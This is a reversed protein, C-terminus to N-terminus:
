KKGCFRPDVYQKHGKRNIYYCGGRAGRHYVKRFPAAFKTEGGKYKPPPFGAQNQPNPDRRDAGMYSIGYIVDATTDARRGTVEAEASVTYKKEVWGYWTSVTASSSQKYVFRVRYFHDTIVKNHQYIRLYPQIEVEAPAHLIAQVRYNKEPRDRLILNDTNVYAFEQASTTISLFIFVLYFLYKM